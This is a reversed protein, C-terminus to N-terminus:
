SWKKQRTTELKSGLWGQKIVDEPVQCSDTANKIIECIRRLEEGQLVCAM